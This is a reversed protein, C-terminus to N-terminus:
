NNINKEPNMQDMRNDVDDHLGQKVETVKGEIKKYRELEKELDTVRQELEDIRKDKEIVVKEHALDKESILKELDGIRKEAHAEIEDVRTKMENYLKQWGDAFTVVVDANIKQAEASTKPKSGRYAFYAGIGGAGLFAALIPAVIQIINDTEM